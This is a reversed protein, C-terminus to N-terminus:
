DNVVKRTPCEPDDLQSDFAMYMSKIYLSNWPGYIERYIPPPCPDFTLVYSIDSASPNLSVNETM